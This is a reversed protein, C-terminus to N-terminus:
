RRRRRIPDRLRHTKRHNDAGLGYSVREGVMLPVGDKLWKIHVFLDKDGDSPRIFGYGKDIIWKVCEGTQRRAEQPNLKDLLQQDV